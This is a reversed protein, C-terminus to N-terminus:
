FCGGPIRGSLCGHFPNIRGSHKSRRFLKVGLEEEMQMIQRSLSPQTIHLIAAAKTINEEGAVILFSRLTRLEM